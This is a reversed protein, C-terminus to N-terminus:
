PRHPTGRVSCWYADLEAASRVPRIEASAGPGFRRRVAARVAAEATKTVETSCSTTACLVAIGTVIPARDSGGHRDGDGIV